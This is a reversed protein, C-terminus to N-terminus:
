IEVLDMSINIIFRENNIVVTVIDRRSDYECVLNPFKKKLKQSIIDNFQELNINGQMKLINLYDQVEQQNM